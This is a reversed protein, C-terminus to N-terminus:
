DNPESEYYPMVNDLIYEYIEDLVQDYGYWAYDENSIIAGSNEDVIWPYREADKSSPVFPYGIPALLADCHVRSSLMHDFPEKEFEEVMIKARRWLEEVVEQRAMKIHSIIKTM